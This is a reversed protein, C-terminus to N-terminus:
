LKHGNSFDSKYATISDIEWNPAKEKKSKLDAMTCYQAFTKFRWRKKEKYKRELSDSENTLTTKALVEGPKRQRVM